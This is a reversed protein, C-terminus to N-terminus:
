IKGIEMEEKKMTETEQNREFRYLEQVASEVSLCEARFIVGGIEDTIEIKITM